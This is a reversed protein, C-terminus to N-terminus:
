QAGPNEALLDFLGNEIEKLQADLGIQTTGLQTELLCDEPGVAADGIVDIEVQKDNNRSFYARWNEADDPKVRVRVKTSQHLKELVAKTLKAVLAPDAKAERHLIKGAIALALQVVELETRSYYAAVDSQFREIVTNIRNREQALQEAGRGREREEGERVGEAHARLLLETIEDNSPDVGDSHSITEAHAGANASEPYRFSEIPAPVSAPFLSKYSTNM